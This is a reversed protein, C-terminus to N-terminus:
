FLSVQSSEPLDKFAGVEHLLEIVSKSVKALGQFEDVSLFETGGERAAAL